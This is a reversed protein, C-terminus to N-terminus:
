KKKRPLIVERRQVRKDSGEIEYLPTKTLPNDYKKKIKVTQGILDCVCDPNAGHTKAHCCKVVVKCGIIIDGRNEM